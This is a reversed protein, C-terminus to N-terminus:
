GELMVCELLWTHDRARYCLQFVDDSDEVNISFYLLRGQEERDEWTCNVRAVRCTEGNKRKFLRPLVKGGSTFDARVKIRERIRTIEM